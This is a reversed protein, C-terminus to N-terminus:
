NIRIKKAVNIPIKITKEKIQVILHTNNKQIIRLEDDLTIGYEILIDEIYTNEQFESIRVNESIKTNTLNLGSVRQPIPSGHPDETPYGLKSDLEDVFDDSLHHELREADDHIQETNLGMSTSQYMEWLRHARVLDQAKIEGAKTLTLQDSSTLLSQSKLKQVHTSLQGKHIGLFLAIESLNSKQLQPFKNLYKIVDEQIIKANIRKGSIWNVLLGKSPSLFATALYIITSVIVMAPGPTTNFYTALVYGIIAAVFGLFASIYLVNKLKDSLLLATSAPTILMAVVLIVGVSRLAAVVAFSLILMLFYHVWQTSIGMTAALTPQFTTIFFYRYFIVICIVTYILVIASLIIDETSIGLISGFLFDKLDLHNGKQNNLSSIGMVGISFMATFVIGIAADNKTKIRYQIWTIAIATFIGAVVSGIFFGLTSYGVIIFSFYIGPLISHSLADGILSMNRLVIFCGILGCTIGVMSSTVM